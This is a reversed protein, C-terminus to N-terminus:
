RLTSVLGYDALLAWNERSFGCPEAQYVRRRDLDYRDAVFREALDQLMREDESLDFNM